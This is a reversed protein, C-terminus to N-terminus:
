IMSKMPSSPIFSVHKQDDDMTVYEILPPALEFLQLVLPAHKFKLSSFFYTIYILTSKYQQNATFYSGHLVLWSM